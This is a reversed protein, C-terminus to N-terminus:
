ARKRVVVVRDRDAWDQYVLSESYRGVSAFLRSVRDRIDAGIELVMFGGDVLYLYGEHIIRRYLEIGDLGGDLASEPEWDRVEPPLTRIEERRVYPPNSVVMHFYGRRGEVPEFIDGRLLHIKEKVGHGVANAQAIELAGASLDTAWIEAGSREKALSIAIAGSGTGLDLIKLPFDKDLQGMHDLAVEVLLETEPRPVLVDQTVLFDLSWFEQHGTIYPIPERRARRQLVQRFRTKESAKLPVEYNLYLEERGCGVAKGLLLEADLRASEVGMRSLFETGERLAQRVTIPDPSCSKGLQFEGSIM